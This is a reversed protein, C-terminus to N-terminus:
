FAFKDWIGSQPCGGRVRSRPEMTNAGPLAPDDSWKTGKFSALAYLFCQGAVAGFELCVVYIVMWDLTLHSRIQFIFNSASFLFSPRNSLVRWLLYGRSMLPSFDHIHILETKLGWRLVNNIQFLFSPPLLSKHSHSVGIPQRGRRGGHM